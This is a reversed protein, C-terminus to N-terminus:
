RSSPLGLNSVAFEDGSLDLKTWSSPSETSRVRVRALTTHYLHSPQALARPNLYLLGPETSDSELSSEQNPPDSRLSHTPNKSRTLLRLSTTQLSAPQTCIFNPRTHVRFAFSLGATPVLLGLGLNLSPLASRQTIVVKISLIWNLLTLHDRPPSTAGSRPSAPQYPHNFSM